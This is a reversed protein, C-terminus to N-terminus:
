RHIKKYTEVLTPHSKAILLILAAHGLKVEVFGAMLAGVRCWLRDGSSMRDIAALAEKEASISCNRRTEVWLQQPRLCLPAEEAVEVVLLSPPSIRPQRSPPPSM